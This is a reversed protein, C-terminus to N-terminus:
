IKTIREVIDKSILKSEPILIASHPPLMYKSLLVIVKINEYRIGKQEMKRISRKLLPDFIRM